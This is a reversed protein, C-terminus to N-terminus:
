GCAYRNRDRQSSRSRDGHQGTVNWRTRDGTDRGLLLDFDGTNLIGPSNGPAVTSLDNATVAGITGSGRLQTGTLVTYDSQIVGNVILDGAQNFTFAGTASIDGGAAQTIEGTPANMVLNGASTVVRNGFDIDFTTAAITVDGTKSSVRELTVNAGSVTVNAGELLSNRTALVDGVGDTDADATLILDGAGDDDSDAQHPTNFAGGSPMNINRDATITANGTARTWRGVGADNAATITVNGDNAFVQSPLVNFGSLTAQAGFFGSLEAGTINGSNDLDSDATITITGTDNGDADATVDATPLALHVDGTVSFDIDGNASVAASGTYSDGTIALSGTGTVAGTVSIDAGVITADDLFAVGTVEVAGSTANGITISSFGDQLNLIDSASLNLTGTASDGIGITTASDLPFILLAGSGQVGADLELTNTLLNIAGTTSDISELVHIDDYFM